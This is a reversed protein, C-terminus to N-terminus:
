LGRLRPDLSDRLSDGFVNVSFVVVSLAIAPAILMWPAVIMYTRGDRALMGGWTPDPPPVGYGLFSLSAEILIVTGIEYSLLVIILSLINPLIHRFLTRAPTAGIVRASLVYDSA